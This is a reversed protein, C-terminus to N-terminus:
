FINGITFYVIPKGKREPDTLNWGLELRIPGLPTRYRVGLGLAHELDALKLDSRNAFVNGVDYFLAGGLNPVAALLPLVAEFNFLAMAKGGVPNGSVPDKPGLEDFEQGRFSNSGGAFFREHIPMNGTGLGLRFTAGLTARSAVPFYRQYKFAWKLFDSETTFLPFAYQLSLSSFYGRTPNFGDDRKERILSPEVSTASYPYFERDIENPPIDLYYLTTSAYRLAALLTLNWFIPKIVSLSVGERKYGFSARDEEEIWGNLYTPVRIGFFFYPQEWSVILRKEALSFQSVLSLNAARGFVNSRMYEATGRPRLQASGLSSTQLENRTEIGIGLGVYNREGERLRIVLNESGPMLPVEDIRAESFVGLKELGTRSAAIKEQRALDGEKIKLEKLITRDRTVLNGSIFVGQVKTGVGERILFSVDFEDEGAPTARAEIRTGRIGQDLYYAELIQIDRQISPGFYPGGEKVVVQGRLTPEDVLGAGIFEIKRTRRQRGEEIGFSAVATSDREHFHLNVAVDTFGRSQYLVEIEYPLEFVRKGDIGGFVRMREALLLQSKLEDATLHQNGEFQVEPIRYKKGPSANHNVRIGDELKEISSRVSAFIYGKGRLDGLIRAEGESMGWEEFVPAEWIPQLLNVAVKAGSIVIDVREGTDIRILLLVTGEEVFFSEPAPQVDARPFGLGRYKDRIRQLDKEMKILSYPQGARTKILKRLDAAPVQPGGEFRIDSIIYRAGASIEFTVDVQPARADRVVSTRIRPQFYGERALAAKIEGVGQGLRDESFYIDTRLSVLSERVRGSFLPRLGRFRVARILLRSTLRFTLEVEKDGSSFVRVDSFLGTGFVQKVAESVAYPSFAEGQKLSILKDLGPDAARDDVLMTIAAIRATVAANAIPAQLGLGAALAFLWLARFAATPGSRRRESDEVFRSILASGDM